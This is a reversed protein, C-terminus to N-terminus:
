PAGAAGGYARRTGACRDSGDRFSRDLGFGPHANAPVEWAQHLAVVAGAQFCDLQLRSGALKEAIDSSEFARSVKFKLKGQFFPPVEFDPRPIFLFPSSGHPEGGTTAHSTEHINPM